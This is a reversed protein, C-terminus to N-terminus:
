KIKVMFSFSMVVPVNNTSEIKGNNFDSITKRLKPLVSEVSLTHGDKKGKSKVGFYNFQTLKVTNNEEQHDRILEILDYVFDINKFSENIVGHKHNLDSDGFYVPYDSLFNVSILRGYKSEDGSVYIPIDRTKNNDSIDNTFKDEDVTVHPTYISMIKIIDNKLEDFTDYKLTNEFLKYTNLYKM